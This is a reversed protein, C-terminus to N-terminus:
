NFYLSLWAHSNFFFFDLFLAQPHLFLGCFFFFFFFKISHKQLFAIWAMLFMYFYRTTARPTPFLDNYYSSSISLDPKLNTSLDFRSSNNSQNKIKKHKSLLFVNFSPLLVFKDMNKVFTPLQLCASSLKLPFLTM